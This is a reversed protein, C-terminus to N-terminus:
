GQEDPESLGPIRGALLGQKVVAVGEGPFGLVSSSAVSIGTILLSRRSSIGWSNDKEKDVLGNGRSTPVTKPRPIGNESSSSHALSCSLSLQQWSFSRCGSFLTTCM